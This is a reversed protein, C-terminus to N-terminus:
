LTEQAVTSGSMVNAVRLQIRNSIAEMVIIYEAGILRGIQVVSNDAVWGSWQFDQEKRILEFNHGERTVVRFKANNVLNSELMDFVFDANRSTGINNIIVFSSGNRINNLARNTRQVLAEVNNIYETNNRRFLVCSEAIIQATEVDVAQFVFRRTEGSGFVGGTIIISAGELNFVRTSDNWAYEGSLLAKQAEMAALRQEELFVNMGRAESVIVSQIYQISFDNSGSIDSVLIRSGRPVNRYLNQLSDYLLEEGERVNNSTGTEQINSATRTNILHNIQRDNPNINLSSSAVRRGKEIDITFVRLRYAEGSFTIQGTVVFDAGLQHGINIIENDDVEGSLQYGVEMAITNTRSREMISLKGFNILKDYMEEIIYSSLNENDSKFDLIAVDAGEPLDNEIKEMGTRLADDFSLYKPGTVCSCILLSLFVFIKNM